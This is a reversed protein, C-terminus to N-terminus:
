PTSGGTREAIRELADLEEDTLDSLDLQQRIPGGGPGSQEVAVRDAAEGRAVREVKAAIDLWQAAQTPTLDDAQLSNLREIIKGTMAAAIQAHRKHMDHIAKAAQERAIQDQEADWADTRAVWQWRASWRTILTTSKGLEESVRACSRTAGMDRYTAFAAFAQRTEGYQREWLPHRLTANDPM